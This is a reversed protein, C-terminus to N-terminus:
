LLTLGTEALWTIDKTIIKQCVCNVQFLFRPVQDSGKWNDSAAFLLVVKQAPADANDALTFM